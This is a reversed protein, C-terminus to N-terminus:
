LHSSQAEFYTPKLLVLLRLDAPAFPSTGFFSSRRTRADAASMSVWERVHKSLFGIGFELYEGIQKNRISIIENTLCNMFIQFEPNTKPSFMHHPSCRVEKSFYPCLPRQLYLLSIYAMDGPSINSKSTPIYYKYRKKKQLDEVRFLLYAVSFSERILTANENCFKHNRELPNETTLATPLDSFRPPLQYFFTM